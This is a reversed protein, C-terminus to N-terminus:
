EDPIRFSQLAVFSAECHTLRPYKIAGRGPGRLGIRAQCTLKQKRINLGHHRSGIALRIDKPCNGM